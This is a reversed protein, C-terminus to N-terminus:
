LDTYRGYADDCELAAFTAALWLIRACVETAIGCLLGVQDAKPEAIQM